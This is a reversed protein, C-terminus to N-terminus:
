RRPVPFLSFSLLMVVVGAIYLQWEGTIFYMVAGYLGVMEGLAWGILVLGAKRGMEIARGFVSRLVLMGAIGGGWIAYGVYRLLERQEAGPAAVAGGGHHMYYSVAGFLLVGGLYAIRILPLARAQQEQPTTM